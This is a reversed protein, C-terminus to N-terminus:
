GDSSSEKEGPEVWRVEIERPREQEFEKQFQLLRIFDALSGKAEEALKEEMRELLGEIFRARKTREKREGAEAEAAAQKATKVTKKKSEAM